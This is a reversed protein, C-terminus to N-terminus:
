CDVDDTEDEEEDDAFDGYVEAEYRERCHEWYVDEKWGPYM